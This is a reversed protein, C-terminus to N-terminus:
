DEWVIKGGRAALAKSLYEADMEGAMPWNTQLVEVLPDVPKPIIFNHLIPPLVFNGRLAEEVADSVERKFAEHEEILRCMAEVRSFNDRNQETRGTYTPNRERIVADWLANAKKEVETM